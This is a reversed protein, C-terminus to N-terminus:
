LLYLLILYCVNSVIDAELWAIGDIVIWSWKRFTAKDVDAIGALVRDGTYQKMLM